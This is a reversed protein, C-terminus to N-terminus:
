ELVAFLKRVYRDGAQFIFPKAVLIGIKSVMAPAPRFESYKRPGYKFSPHHVGFCNRGSQAPCAQARSTLAQRKGLDKEARAVPM